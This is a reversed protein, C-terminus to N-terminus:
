HVLWCMHLVEEISAPAPSTGHLYPFFRGINRGEYYPSRDDPALGSRGLRVLTTAYVDAPM